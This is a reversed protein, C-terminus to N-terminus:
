AHEDLDAAPGPRAHGVGVLGLAGDERDGGAFPVFLFVASQSPSWIM